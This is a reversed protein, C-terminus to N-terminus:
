GTKRIKKHYQEFLVKPLLCLKSKHQLEILEHMYKDHLFPLLTVNSSIYFQIENVSIEALKM